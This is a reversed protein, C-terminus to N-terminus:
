REYPATLSRQGYQANCGGLGADVLEQPDHSRVLERVGRGSRIAVLSVAAIGAIRSM